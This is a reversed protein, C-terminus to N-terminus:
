VVCIFAKHPMGFLKLQESIQRVLFPTYKGVVKYWVFACGQLLVFDKSDKSPPWVPVISVYFTKDCILKLHALMMEPAVFVHFIAEWM